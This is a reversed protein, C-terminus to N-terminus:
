DSIELIKKHKHIAISMLELYNHMSDKTGGYKSSPSTSKKHHAQNVLWKTLEMISSTTHSEVTPAKLPSDKRKTLFEIDAPPSILSIGPVRACPKKGWRKVSGLTLIIFCNPNFPDLYVPHIEDYDKKMSYKKYIEEKHIDLDIMIYSLVSVLLNEHQIKIKFDWPNDMWVIIGGKVHVSDSIESIWRDFSTADCILHPSAKPLKKNRLIEGSWSITLSDSKPGYIIMCVIKSFDKEFKNEVLEQFGDLNMNNNPFFAVLLNSHPKLPICAMKKAKPNKESCFLNFSIACEFPFPHHNNLTTDIKFSAPNSIPNKKLIPEDIQFLDSNCQQPSNFDDSSKASSELGSSSFYYNMALCVPQYNPDSQLWIGM